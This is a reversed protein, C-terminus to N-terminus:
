VATAALRWLDFNSTRLALLVDGWRGGLTTQMGEFEPFSALLSCCAAFLALREEGSLAATRSLMLPGMQSVTQDFIRQGLKIGLQKCWDLLEEVVWYTDLGKKEKSCKRSISGGHQRYLYLRDDIYRGQFLPDLCFAQVTDEFWFGEPFEIRRWVERSYIRGWPAGHDRQGKHSVLKSGDASLMRYDATVFDCGGKDYERCLVEIADPELMDDSDVFSILAGRAKSIGVNRAGSFGKNSQHIIRLRADNLALRDLIAGTGDASGDDVAIVELSRSTRQGLVSLICEEVYAEANYCPVVVSVDVEPADPWDRSVPLNCAAPRPSASELIDRAEDASPLKQRGRGIAREKAMRYLFDSKLAANAVRMCVKSLVGM